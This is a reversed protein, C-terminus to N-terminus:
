IGQALQTEINYGEDLAQINAMLLKHHRKPLTFKFAQQVADLPLIQTKALFAGLAVMNTLRRDAIHEAIESAPILFTKIDNRRIDRNILSSNVILIGNSVVQSEYKDWSPLNLAIVGYPHREIPSGIEDDAIIVTCNATGGRMEPGYSPFWTVHFKKIMAARALVTGAFLVGQGGFGAIVIEMQM